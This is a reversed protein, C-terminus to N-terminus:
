STLEKKPLTVMVQLFALAFSSLASRVRRLNPLAPISNLLLQVTQLFLSIPDGHIEDVTFVCGADPISSGPTM